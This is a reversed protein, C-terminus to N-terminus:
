RSDWKDEAASRRYYRPVFQWPDDVHGALFRRYGLVGVTRAAPLWLSEQVPQVEAPLQDRLKTLIPGTASDRPLLEQLWGEVSLIRTEDPALAFDANFDYAQAFLEGRQADLAAWVRGYEIQAHSALVSLTSVGVLKAGTAYALTKATTVGIRLGTFSGPGQTVAILELSSPNWDVEALTQQMLPALCQATRQDRPLWTEKRLAAHGSQDGELLALSGHRGSTEFALIRVYTSPRFSALRPNAAQGM